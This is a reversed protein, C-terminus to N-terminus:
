TLWWTLRAAPSERQFATLSSSAQCLTEVFDLTAGFTTQRRRPSNPPSLLAAAPADAASGATGRAAAPESQRVVGPGGDDGASASRLVLASVGEGEGLEEQLSSLREAAVVTRVPVLPHGPGELLSGQSGPPSGVVRQRCRCRLCCASCSSCPGHCGVAAVACPLLGRPLGGRGGARGWRTARLDRPPAEGRQAAGADHHADGLMLGEVGTDMFVSSYLGGGLGDPSLPRSGDDGGPSVQSRSRGVTFSSVPSTLTPTPRKAPSATLPPPLRSQKFPLQWTGQLAAQECTDRLAAM